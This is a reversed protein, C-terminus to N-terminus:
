RWIGGSRIRSVLQNSVGYCEGLQRQTLPGIYNKIENVEELTLKNRGNKVGKASRGKLTRDKINDINTGLFLHDPNVCGPNDCSHCVVLGKMMDLDINNALSYALRHARENRGNHWLAGYGDRDRWWLWEICDSM